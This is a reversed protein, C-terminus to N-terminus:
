LYLVINSISSNGVEQVVTTSNLKLTYISFLVKKQIAKIKEMKEGASNKRKRGKRPPPSDTGVACALSQLVMRNSYQINFKSLSM